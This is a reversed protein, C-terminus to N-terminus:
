KLELCVPVHDSPRAKNRFEKLIKASKLKKEFSSSTLIHDLRRGRNNREYNPSRYSWWTFVNKPPSIFFRISDILDCDVLIKKLRNREVETHSVVNILHKHSWVDDKNPAVNLDGCVIIKQKKKAKLENSLQRLFKLKHDFKLNKEPNPDDGGAPVYVSMVETEDVEISIHRADNKNCFNIVSTNKAEEKSLIAVGNYSSIGKFYSFYGKQRFVTEPFQDDTIKTEQLCLFDPQENEVIKLVHDIRARISNVNWSIIKM